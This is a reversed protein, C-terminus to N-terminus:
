LLAVGAFMAFLGTTSAPTAVAEIVSAQMPRVDNVPAEPNLRAVIGRVMADVQTLTSATRVAITMQAPVRGDELTAAANWPVYATGDIWEPETRELDYARVDAVVGVITRWETDNVFRIRHGVASRGGWFRKATAATVIAVPPNGSYDRESFGSGALLPIGMVRFYEPSVIDLWFLPNAKSPPGVFGEIQISRKAVRGGLPPTNVVAAATVGSVSELQSIASRYFTLCREVDQCFSQNPTVRATVVQESHFGPNVHSLTWLSRILLGAGIVLVVALAVESLVLANRLRQSVPLITGRGSSRSASTLGKSVQAAPVLGFLLGSLVAVASTFAVARWDLQVDLLRPTEVPLLAKLTTLGFAGLALGAVGGISALVVSETILQRALRGRGAGLASRIAIEKERGAARSLTLNAVNACAILLVLVVAGLLMLLRGRVDSVMGNRLEVVSVDRNWDAPMTWPFLRAVRPQFLQIEARAEQITAGPRLRGIVPMFDGAWYTQANAPDNHLPIW